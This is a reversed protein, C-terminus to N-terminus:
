SDIAIYSYIYHIAIYGPQNDLMLQWLLLCLCGTIVTQTLLSEETPGMGPIFLGLLNNLM